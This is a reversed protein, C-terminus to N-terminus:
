DMILSPTSTWRFTRPRPNGAAPNHLGQQWHEEAKLGWREVAVDDWQYIRQAGPFPDM